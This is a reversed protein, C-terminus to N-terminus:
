KNLNDVRQVKDVVLFDSRIYGRITGADNRVESWNDVTSVIYLPTDNGLTAVISATYWPHSRVNVKYEVNVRAIDSWYAQDAQEIRVLDSAHPDRLYKGATYGSAKGTSTTAVTNEQIDTVVVDAGQVKVWGTEKGEITVADNNMLYAKTESQMSAARRMRVSRIANAFRIGQEKMKEARYNVIDTSALDLLPGNSLDVRSTDPNINPDYQAQVCGPLDSAVRTSYYRGNSLSTLRLGSCNTVENMSLTEPLDAPLTKGTNSSSQTNFNMVKAGSCGPLNAEVYRVEFKGTSLRVVQTGSCNTIAYIDTVNAQLLNSVCILSAGAVIVSLFIINKFM